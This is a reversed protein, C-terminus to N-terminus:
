IIIVDHECLVYSDHCKPRNSYVYIWLSRNYCQNKNKILTLLLSNYGLVKVNLTIVNLM